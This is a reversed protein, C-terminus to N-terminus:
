KESVRPFYKVQRLVILRGLILLESSCSPTFRTERDISPQMLSASDVMPEDVDRCFGSANFGGCFHNPSMCEPISRTSEISTSQTLMASLM